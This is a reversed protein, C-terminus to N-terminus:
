LDLYNSRKNFQKPQQLIGNLNEDLKDHTSISTYKDGTLKYVSNDNMAISCKLLFIESNSQQEVLGLSRIVGHQLCERLGIRAKSEDIDLNSIKWCSTGFQKNVNNLLERSNKSKLHYTNQTRQFIVPRKNSEFTLKPNNSIAVTLHYVEGTTFTQEKDFETDSLEDEDYLFLENDKRVVWSPECFYGNDRHSWDYYITTDPDYYINPRQILHYGFKQIVKEIHKKFEIVQTDPKIMQIGVQMAKEAAIHLDNQKWENDGIKITEGVSAVNNDVHCALEIRVIDGDVLQYDDKETYSNHSVISNISLCTPLMVGKSLKKYSQGLKEKILTDCFTCIYSAKMKQNCLEIAKEMALNAVDAATKYMNFKSSDM